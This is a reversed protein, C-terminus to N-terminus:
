FINFNFIEARDHEFAFFLRNLNKRNAFLRGTLWFGSEVREIYIEPISSIQSSYLQMFNGYASSFATGMM